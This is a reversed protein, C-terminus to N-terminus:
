PNTTVLKGCGTSISIKQLKKLAGPAVSVTKKKHFGHWDVGFVGNPQEFYECTNLENIRVSIPANLYRLMMKRYSDDYTNVRVRNEFFGTPAWQIYVQQNNQKEGATDKELKELFRIMSVKFEPNWYVQYEIEITANEGMSPVISVSKIKVDFGSQQIQSLYYETLKYRQILTHRATLHQAQLDNGNVVIAKSDGLLKRQFTWPAVTATVSCVITSTGECQKVEYRNVVGSSYQAIMDRVIKNNEATQDSVILVGIAEQVSSVLANNIAEERTKGTGTTTVIMEKPVSESFFIRVGSFVISIYDFGSFQQASVTTSFVLFSVAILRRM